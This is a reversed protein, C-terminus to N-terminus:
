FLTFLWMQYLFGFRLRSFPKLTGCWFIEVQTIRIRPLCKATDPSLEVEKPPAFTRYPAVVDLSSPGPISSFRSSQVFLLTPGQHGLQSGTSCSGFQMDGSSEEDSSYGVRGLRSGLVQGKIGREPAM